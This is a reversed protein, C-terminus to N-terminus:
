KIFLKKIKTFKKFAYPYNTLLYLIKRIIKSHPFKKIIKFDYEINRKEKLLKIYDLSSYCFLNVEQSHYGYDFKPMTLNIDRPHVIIFTDVLLDEFTNIIKKSIHNHYEIPFKQDEFLFNLLLWQEVAYRSRFKKEFKNSYDAHTHNEYWIANELQYYPCSFYREIDEKYGFLVMDSVHYPLREFARPNLSFLSITLIRGKSLKKERKKEKLENWINLIKPSTIFQDSRIKLVLPRTVYKIGSLTSNIQKNINNKATQNFKLPPLAEIDENKVVKDFLSLEDIYTDTSSLIIESEPFIKRMIRAHNDINYEPYLPGQIVISIDKDTFYM